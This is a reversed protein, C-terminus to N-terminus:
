GVGARRCRACWGVNGLLGKAQGHKPPIREHGVRRVVHDAQQDVVGFHSKGAEAAEGDLAIAAIRRLGLQGPGVGDGDPLDGLDAVLHRGEVDIDRIREGVLYALRADGDRGDVLGARGLARHDARDGARAAEAKRTVAAPRRRGLEIRWIANGPVRFPVDQVDGVGQVVPHARDVASPCDPAEKGARQIMRASQGDVAVPQVDRIRVVVHNAAEVEVPAHERRDGAGPRGAIDITDAARRRPQLTWRADSEVVPRVQEDGIGAVVDHALEGGRTVHRGHGTRTFGAPGSVAARSNM